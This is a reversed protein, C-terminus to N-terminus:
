AALMAGARSANPLAAASVASAAPRATSKSVASRSASAQSSASGGPSGGGHRQDVLEAAEFETRGRPLEQDVPLRGRKARACEVEQQRQDFAAIAQDGLVLQEFQDPGSQDDLLVVQLHLNGRQALQQPLLGDGGDGTM